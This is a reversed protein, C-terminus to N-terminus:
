TEDKTKIWPPLKIEKPPSFEQPSVFSSNTAEDGFKNKNPKATM